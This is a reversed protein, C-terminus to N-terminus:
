APIVYAGSWKGPAVSNCLLGELNFIHLVGNRDVEYHGETTLEDGQETYTLDGKASIPM